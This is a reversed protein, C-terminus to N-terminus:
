RDYDQGEEGDENARKNLHASVRVKAGPGQVSLAGVLAGTASKEFVGHTQSRCIWIRFATPCSVLGESHLEKGSGVHSGIM